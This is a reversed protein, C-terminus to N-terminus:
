KVAEKFEDLLAMINLSQPCKTECLGCKVCKDAKNKEPIFQYRNKVNNVNKYMLLDSYLSLVGPIFVESPCPMCYSCGTCQFHKMQTYTNKVKEFLLLDEETLCGPKSDEATRVNESIQRVDNMGSLILSVEKKNWLWSLAWEAPTRELSSLEWIKRVSEPPNVLNGGLLPEMVIVPIGKSYALELGKTGAQFEENMFNYQIQCFDWEGCYELIDKFVKFEDHFSFGVHGIKGQQKAKFVKELVSLEKVKKWASDHLSHLLYYDIFDTRLKKMQEDLYTDFDDEKGIKWVPLKTAVRIEKRLGKDLFEGLFSESNGGHYPYATDFYNIGSEIAKELVIIAKQRDIENNSDKVPLRMCGMGLASIEDGTKGFKVYRM